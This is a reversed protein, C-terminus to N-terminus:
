TEKCFEWVKTKISKDEAARRLCKIRTNKDTGKAVWACDKGEKNRYVFNPDDVCGSLDVPSATPGGTPSSVPSATPEAIPGGTPSAVPSSTPEATPTFTPESTPSGTPTSTPGGTPSTTPRKTPGSTPGGTPSLTPRLTPLSTPNNTPSNTPNKTTPPLTQPLLLTFPRLEESGYDGGTLLVNGEYTLTYSGDGWTCCIGDGYGDNIFFTYELGACLGPVTTAFSGQATYDDKYFITQGTADAIGWSVEDPYTDPVLTLTVEENYGGGM